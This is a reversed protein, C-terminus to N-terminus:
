MRVGGVEIPEDGGEEYKKRLENLMINKASLNMKKELLNNYLRVVAL